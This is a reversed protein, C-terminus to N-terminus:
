ASFIFFIRPCIYYMYTYLGRQQQWLYCEAVSNDLVNIVADTGGFLRVQLMDEQKDISDPIPTIFDAVAVTKSVQHQLKKLMVEVSTISLSHLM